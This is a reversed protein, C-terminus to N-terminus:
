LQFHKTEHLENGKMVRSYSYGTLKTECLSCDTVVRDCVLKNDMLGSANFSLAAWSRPACRFGFHNSKVFKKQPIPWKIAEVLTTRKM